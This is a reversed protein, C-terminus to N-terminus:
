GHGRLFYKYSLSHTGQICGERWNRQFTFTEEGQNHKKGGPYWVNCVKRAPQGLFDVVLYNLWLHFWPFHSSSEQSCPVTLPHHKLRKEDVAGDAFQSHLNWWNKKELLKGHNKKRLSWLVNLLQYIQLRPTDTKHGFFFDKLTHICPSSAM